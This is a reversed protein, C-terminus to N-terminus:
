LLTNFRCTMRAYILYTKVLVASVSGDGPGVPKNRLGLLETQQCICAHMHMALTRSLSIIKLSVM